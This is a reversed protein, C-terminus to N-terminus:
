DLLPSTFNPKNIALSPFTFNTIFFHYIKVFPSSSILALFLQRRLPSLVSESDAKYTSEFHFTTYEGCANHELEYTSKFIKGDRATYFM